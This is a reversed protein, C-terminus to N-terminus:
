WNVENSLQYQGDSLQLQFLHALHRSLQELQRLGISLAQLASVNGNTQIRMHIKDESPHPISYACLEVNESFILLTYSITYLIDIFTIIPIM